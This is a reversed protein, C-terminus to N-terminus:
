CNTFIDIPKNKRLFYVLASIIGSFLFVSFIYFAPNILFKNFFALSCKLFQFNTNTIFGNDDIINVLETVFKKGISCKCNTKFTEMDVSEEYCYDECMNYDPFCHKIRDNLSM